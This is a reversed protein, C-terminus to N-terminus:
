LLSDLMASLAALEYIAIGIGNSKKRPGGSYYLLLFDEHLFAFPDHVRERDWQFFSGPELIKPIVKWTYGKDASVLLHITSNKAECTEDVYFVLWYGKYKILHGSSIFAQTVQNPALFPIESKRWIRGDESMAFGLAPASRIKNRGMYLLIYRTSDVPTIRAYSLENDDWTSNEDADLVPRDDVMWFLGDSSYALGTAQTANQHPWERYGHFYMLFCKEKPQWIVHPSSIHSNAREPNSCSLVPNDGWKKWPGFPSPATAVGIGGPPDHPAFYMYYKDLPEDLYTEACIVCPFIIDNGKEWDQTKPILIPNGSYKCGKLTREM